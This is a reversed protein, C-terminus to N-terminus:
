DTARHFEVAFRAADDITIHHPRLPPVVLHDGARLHFTTDPDDEFVFDVAGAEVRLIGWTNATIQHAALLGAPVTDRDFTPTARVFEAHDPLNLETM